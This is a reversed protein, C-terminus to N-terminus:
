RILVQGPLGLGRLVEFRCFTQNLLEAVGAVGGVQETADPRLRIIWEAVAAKHWNGGTAGVAASLSGRIARASHSGSTSNPAFWLASITNYAPSSAAADLMVRPELGEGLPRFHRYVTMRKPVYRRLNAKPRRCSM